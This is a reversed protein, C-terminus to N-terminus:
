RFAAALTAPLEVEKAEALKWVEQVEIRTRGKLVTPDGDAPTLSKGLCSALFRHTHLIRRNLQDQGPCMRGREPHCVNLLIAAEDLTWTERLVYKRCTGEFGPPNPNNDPAAAAEADCQEQERFFQRAQDLAEPSPEPRDDSMTQRNVTQTNATRPLAM